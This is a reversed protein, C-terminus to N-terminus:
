PERATEAEHSQGQDRLIEEALEQDVCIIRTKLDKSDLIQRLASAKKKGGAVILLAPIESLQEWSVNLLKVNVNKILVGLEDRDGRPIRPDEIPILLNCIDAVSYCGCKKYVEISKKVLAQLDKIVPELIPDYEGGKGQEFFRHGDALVGVGTLAHTPHCEAWQKAGLCSRERAGGSEGIPYTVLHLTAIHQVCLGFLATHLDADMSTNVLNSHDHALVAGTLSMLDLKELRLPRPLQMAAEVTCFVGRGSGFGITDGGRVTWEAISKAMAYGLRKHINDDRRREKANQEIIEKDTGAPGDYKTLDSTEVVIARWLDPYRNLVMNEFSALRVAETRGTAVLNVLGEKFASAIARTIVAPDRRYRSALTEVPELGKGDRLPAFRDLAINKKEEDSL